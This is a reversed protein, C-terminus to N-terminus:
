PVDDGNPLRMSIYLGNERLFEGKPIRMEMEAKLSKFHM